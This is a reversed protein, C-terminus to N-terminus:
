HGVITDYIGLVVFGVVLLWMLVMSILATRSIRGSMSSERHMEGSM